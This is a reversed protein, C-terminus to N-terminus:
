NEQAVFCMTSYDVQSCASTSQAASRLLPVPRQEHKEFLTCQNSENSEVVIREELARLTDHVWEVPMASRYAIVLCFPFIVVPYRLEIERAGEMRKYALLASHRVRDWPWVDRCRIECPARQFGNM